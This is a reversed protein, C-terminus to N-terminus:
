EVVASDSSEARFWVDLPCPRPPDRVVRVLQSGKTLGGVNSRLYCADSEWLLLVGRIDFKGAHQFRPSFEIVRCSERKRDHIGNEGIKDATSVPAFVNGCIEFNM